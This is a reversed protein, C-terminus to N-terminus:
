TATVAQDGCYSGDVLLPEAVNWLRSGDQSMVPRASYQAIFARRQRGSTNRGSSHFAMSSFCVLDGPSVIAPEGVLDGFYGVLDGNDPSPVHQVRTRIGLQGFPLIRVVGTDETVEDLPIWCTLYPEHDYPLYGSDQHWSLAGLSSPGDAAVFRASRQGRPATEPFKVAYQEWFLYANPGLLAGCVEAMFQSLLFKRLGPQEKVCNGPFYQIGRRTGGLVDTGARDMSEDLREIMSECESRLLAVHEAPVVGRLICYGDEQFRQVETGTAIM